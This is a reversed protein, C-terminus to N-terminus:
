SSKMIGVGSPGDFQSCSSLSRTTFCDMFPLINWSKETEYWNYILIFWIILEFSIVHKLDDVEILLGTPALKWSDTSQLNPGKGENCLNDPVVVFETPFDLRIHRVDLPVGRGGFLKSSAQLGLDFDCCSRNSRRLRTLNFCCPNRCRRWTCQWAEIDILHPQFTIVCPWVHHFGQRRTDRWKPRTDAPFRGHVAAVQPFEQLEPWNKMKM